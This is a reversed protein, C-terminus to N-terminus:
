CLASHPPPARSVALRVPTLLGSRLAPCGHEALLVGDYLVRM